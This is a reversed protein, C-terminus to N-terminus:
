VFRLIEDVSKRKPPEPNEDPKGIIIFAQPEFQVPLNLTRKVLERSFLPACLWCGGLGEAKAALLFNEIAAATSQVAMMYEASHREPDSYSDMDEMTLCVLLLCPAQTIKKQKEQVVESAEEESFGDDVLDTRWAEAMRDLLSEKKGKNRICVFRWPQANHASPAMGAAHVLKEIQEQSVEGSLKRISRRGELVSYFECSPNNNM